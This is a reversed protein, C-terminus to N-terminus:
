YVSCNKFNEEPIHELNKNRFTEQVSEFLTSMKPRNYIWCIWSKKASCALFEAECNAQSKQDRGNTWDDTILLLLYNVTQLYM